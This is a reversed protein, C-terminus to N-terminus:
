DPQDSSLKALKKSLDDRSRGYEMDILRMNKRFSENLANFSYCLSTVLAMAMGGYGAFIGIWFNKNYSKVEDTEEAKAIESKLTEERTKYKTVLNDLSNKLDENDENISELRNLNMGISANENTLERYQHVVSELPPHSEEYAQIGGYVSMAIGTIVTPIVFRLTKRRKKRYGDIIEQEEQSVENEEEAM